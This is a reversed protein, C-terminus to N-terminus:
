VGFWAILFNKSITGSKVKTLIVQSSCLKWINLFFCSSCISTHIFTDMHNVHIFSTDPRHHSLSVKDVLCQSSINLIRLTSAFKLEWLTTWMKGHLIHPSILGGMLLAVSHSQYSYCYVYIRWFFAFLVVVVKEYVKYLYCLGM